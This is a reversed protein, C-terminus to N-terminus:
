DVQVEFVIVTPNNNRTQIGRTEYNYAVDYAVLGYGPNVEDTNIFSLADLGLYYGAGAAARVELSSVNSWLFGTDYTITSRETAPENLKTYQTFYANGKSTAQLDISNVILSKVGADANLTLRGTNGSTYYFDAPYKLAAGSIQDGNRLEALPITSISTVESGPGDFTASQPKHLIHWKARKNDSTVFTVAFRIDTPATVSGGDIISVFYSLAIHDDPSATDFPLGKLPLTVKSGSETFPTTAGTLTSFDGKLLIGNRGYRFGEKRVRRYGRITWLADDYPNFMAKLTVADQSAFDSASADVTEVDSLATSGVSWQEPHDFAAILSNPPRNSAANDGHTWIGVETFECTLSSPLEAVCKITGNNTPLASLVPVRAVEQKLSRLPQSQHAGIDTSDFTVNPVPRAGIGVGIYDLCADTLGGLKRAVLNKGHDTFM